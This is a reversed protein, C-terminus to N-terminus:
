LTTDTNFTLQIIGTRDRLWVFILSGLDRRRQVWGALIVKKGVDTVSLDTCMHTRKFNEMTEFM